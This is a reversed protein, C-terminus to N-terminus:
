TKIGGGAQLSERLNEFLPHGAFSLFLIVPRILSLSLSLSLCLSLSLSLSVCVCVRACACACACACVCVCLCVSLSSTQVTHRLGGSLGMNMPPM